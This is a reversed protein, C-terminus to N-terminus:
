NVSVKLIMLLLNGEADDMKCLLGQDVVVCHWEQALILASKIVAEM